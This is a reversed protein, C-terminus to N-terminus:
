ASSTAIKSSCCRWFTPTARQAWVVCSRCASYRRTTLAPSVAPTSLNAAFELQEPPLDRHGLLSDRRPIYAGKLDLDSAEDSIGYAESGHIALYLSEEWAQGWAPFRDAVTPDDPSALSPM